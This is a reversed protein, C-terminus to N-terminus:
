LGSKKDNKGTFLSNVWVPLSVKNQKVQEKWEADTLRNSLDTKFEYYSMVFGRAKRQDSLVYVAPIPYGTAVELVKRSNPDTHVDAVKLPIDLSKDRTRLLNNHKLFFRLDNMDKAVPISRQESLAVKLMLTLLNDLEKLNEQVSLGNTIKLLRANLSRIDGIIDPYPEVLCVSQKRAGPTVSTIGVTYSQKGYLLTAHKLLAWTGLNTLLKKDEYNKEEYLFIPSTKKSLLYAREIGLLSHYISLDFISDGIEDTLKQLKEMNSLYHRYKDEEYTDILIDLARQSGLVAQLDLGRPLLRPRNRTGVKNYVLNQFVYSDFIWRQGFLKISILSVSPTDTDTILASFIGPKRERTLGKIIKEDYKDSCLAKDPLVNYGKVIKIFEVPTFDDSKGVIENIVESMYKFTRQIDPNDTVIKSLIIAASINVSQQEKNKCLPYFGMRGLYMMARFYNKMRETRTYHSRPKYQSYDEKINFVPSREMGHAKEILSIEEKIDNRQILSEDETLFYLPVKLYADLLLAGEKARKCKTYKYKKNKELVKKLFVTLSDYLTKDELEYLSEDLLQGFVYFPLDLTVVIDADPRKALDEYAKVLGKKVQPKELYFAPIETANSNFIMSFMLLFIM